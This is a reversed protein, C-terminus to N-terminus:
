LTMCSRLYGCIAACSSTDVGRVFHFAGYTTVNEPKKRGFLSQKASADRQEKVLYVLDHQGYIPFSRIQSIRHTLASESFNTIPEYDIGEPVHISTLENSILELHM